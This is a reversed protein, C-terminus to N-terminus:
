YWESRQRWRHWRLTIRQGIAQWLCYRFSSIPLDYAGVYETITKNFSTKFRGVGHLRHEPNKLQSAPPTGCLDYSTIGRAKMWQIMEWQLLHSAGYATRERISAGDKYTGKKGLLIGFSAAVVKGEYRAFFLQGMNADVFTKWFNWFYEYSRLQWQGAATEQLLTYMIRANQDTLEVPETTVDDREARRLAHRGKQNLNKIIDDLNPRLDLLVTAANPQIPATAVLEPLQAAITAQDGIPLEPEVKLLFVGHQQAFSKLQPVLTALADVSTVGPGKPAYWFKGLLPISKELVLLVVEGAEIYRPMWGTFTKAAAMEKSQFVNGHNPNKLQLEDWDALQRQAIFHTDM